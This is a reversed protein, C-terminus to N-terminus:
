KSHFKNQKSKFTIHNQLHLAYLRRLNMISQIYFHKVNTIKIPNLLDM